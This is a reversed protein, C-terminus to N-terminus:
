RLAPVVVASSLVQYDAAVTSERNNKPLERGENYGGEWVQGLFYLNGYQRFVLRSKGSSNHSGVNNGMTILTTRGSDVSQVALVRGTTNSRIAYKGAPLTKGGVIFDFPVNASISITQGFASGAMLFLVLAGVFTRLQLKMIKEKQTM